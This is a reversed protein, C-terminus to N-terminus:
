STELNKLQGVVTQSPSSDANNPFNLNCHSLSMRIPPFSGLIYAGITGSDPQVIFIVHAPYQV